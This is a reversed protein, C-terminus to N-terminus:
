AWIYIKKWYIHMENEKAGDSRPSGHSQVIDSLKWTFKLKESGTSRSFIKFINGGYLCRYLCNGRNHGWRVGPPWSKLLFLCESLIALLVLDGVSPINLWFYNLRLLVLNRNTVIKSQLALVPTPTPPVCTCFSVIRLIERLGHVM